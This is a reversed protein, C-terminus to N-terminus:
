FIIESTLTLFPSLSECYGDPDLDDRFFSANRSSISFSISLSPHRFFPVARRCSGSFNIDRPFSPAGAAQSESVSGHEAPHLPALFRRIAITRPAGFPFGPSVKNELAIGERKRRPVTISFALPARLPILRM